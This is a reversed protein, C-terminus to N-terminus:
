RGRSERTEIRWEMEVQGNDAEVRVLTADPNENAAATLARAIADDWEQVIDRPIEWGNYFAESIDVTLVDGQLGVDVRFNAVYDEGTRETGEVDFLMHGDQIEIDVNDNEPDREFEMELAEATMLSSIQLSGDPNREVDITCASAVVALATLIAVLFLKKTRM